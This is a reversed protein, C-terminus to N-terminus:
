YEEEKEANDEHRARRLAPEVGIAEVALTHCGPYLYSFM